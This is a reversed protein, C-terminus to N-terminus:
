NHCTAEMARRNAACTRSFKLWAVRLKRVAYRHRQYGPHKERFEATKASGYSPNKERFARSRQRRDDAYRAYSERNFNRVKDRNARRWERQARRQKAISRM